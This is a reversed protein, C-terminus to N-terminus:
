IRIFYFFEIVQLADLSDILLRNTSALRSIATRNKITFKQRSNVNDKLTEVNETLYRSKEQYLTVHKKLTHIEDIKKNLEARLSSAELKSVELDKHINESQSLAMSIVSNVGERIKYPLKTVIRSIEKEQLARQIAFKNANTQIQTENQKRQPTSLFNLNNTSQSYTVIRINEGPRQNNRDLFNDDQSMDRQEARVMDSPKLISM